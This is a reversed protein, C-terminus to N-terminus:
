FRKTMILANEKPSDYFNNRKGELKFNFKEYLKIAKENSERVELSIFSLKSEEAFLLLSELLRSAINLRRYNNTVAINTIYGEDLIISIGVYAILKEGIFAGLYRTKNEFGELFANESWPSSFCEKELEAAMKFDCEKLERIKMNFLADINKTIENRCNKYSELDLGFPDPIGKGLVSIKKNLGLRLLVEKHSETMCIIEDAFDLLEPSILRSKHSSIDVGIEKLALVSNESVKEGESSFGCSLAKIDPLNLSNLYGEAMPSRCTNGTCVFLINM